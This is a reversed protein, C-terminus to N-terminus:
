RRVQMHSTGAIEGTSLRRRMGDRYGRRYSERDEDQYHGAAIAGEPVGDRAARLGHEYAWDRYVARAHRQEETLKM